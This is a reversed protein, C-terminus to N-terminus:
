HPRHRTRLVIPTGEFSFEARLQNELYRKYSFHLDVPHNLSLGFTPPAVGIQTGYLIKLAANGKAAKPAYREAARALVRNLQGTTVRKRAEAAVREVAALLAALGKGSRASVFVVPAYAFFKLHDRFSQEVARQKLQMEPAADWKNVALVVARGAKQVYGGITADMERPGETADLVLVAVDARELAHRAQVVSVHDVNEKLLRARRIGATDVFVYRKEGRVLVSDVSDRTTGPIPSVVAREAGLLRNLLSSKGVNPRGVLAVHPPRAEEDPVAVKPLHALAADLLDGVGQGHEASIPLMEDFGLRAFDELGDDRGEAKNVAVLVRKGGRRLRAAIAQDDPLLGARADAVLVVLDAEDIARRAQETAPGLLPDDTGLLLGGTDILEFAAGQWSAQAYNRDRTSGPRNDTIAKRRGVIRNFLTSKGVNPRGVLAIKPIPIM